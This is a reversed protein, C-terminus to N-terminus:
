KIIITSPPSANTTAGIWATLPIDGSASNSPVVVSFSAHSVKPKADAKTKKMAVIKIPLPDPLVSRNGSIFNVQVTASNTSDNSAAVRLTVMKDAAGSKVAVTEKVPTIKSPVVSGVPGPAPTPGPSGLQKVSIKCPASVNTTSGIWATLSAEGSASNSPVVVSFSIYSVKAKADPKAKKAAVMEVPLPDSILGTNDSQFNVRVTVNNTTDNEAMLRFRVTKDAEGAKVSVTKKEPTIKVPTISSQGLTPGIGALAITLYSPVVYQIPGDWYAPNTTYWTPNPNGLGQIRDGFPSSYGVSYSSVAYAYPDYNFPNTDLNPGIVKPFTTPTQAAALSLLAFLQGSTLQRVATNAGEVLGMAALVSPMHINTGPANTVFVNYVNNTSNAWGFTMGAMLDGVVRGSLDNLIGTTAYYAPTSNSVVYPPNAGYVGASSNLNSQTVFFAFAGSLSGSGSIVVGPTGNQIGYFALTPNAAANLNNTFTAIATYSQKTQYSPLWGTISAYNTGSGTYGFTVGQLRTWVPINETIPTNTSAIQLVNGNGQLSLMLNTWDHYATARSQPSLVSVVTGGRDTVYPSQALGTFSANADFIAKVGSVLSNSTPLPNWTSVLNPLPAPAVSPDTTGYFTVTGPLAAANVYSLDLNATLQGNIPTSTQPASYTEEILVYPVTANTAMAESTIPAGVSIFIRGSSIDTLNFAYVSAPLGPAISSGPVAFQNLEYSTWNNTADNNVVISNAANNGYFNPGGSTIGSVSVYVLSPHYAGPDILHPVNTAWFTTQGHAAFPAAFTSLVLFLFAACPRPRTSAIRNM